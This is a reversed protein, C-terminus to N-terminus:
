RLRLRVTRRDRAVGGRRDRVVVTYRLLYVGRPASRRLRLPARAAFEGPDVLSPRPRVRAVVSGNPGTLAAARFVRLLVDGGLRYVVRYEYRGRRLYPPPVPTGAAARVVQLSLIRARPAAEAAGPALLAAAALGAAAPAALLKGRV